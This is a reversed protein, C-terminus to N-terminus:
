NPGLPQADVALRLLSRACHPRKHVVSWTSVTTIHSRRDPAALLRGILRPHCNPHCNKAPPRRARVPDARHSARGSLKRASRRDGRGGGRPHPLERGWRGRGRSRLDDAAALGRTGGRDGQVQRERGIPEDGRGARLGAALEVAFEAFPKRTSTMYHRRDPAVRMTEGFHFPRPRVAGSSVEERVCVVGLMFTPRTRRPAGTREDYGGRAEILGRCSHRPHHGAM